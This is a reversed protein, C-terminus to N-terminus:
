PPWCWTGPLTGPHNGGDSLGGSGDGTADVARRHIGGGRHRRGSRALVRGPADAPHHHYGTSVVNSVASGSISGFLGSAVIAIKAAGGRFAGMLAIALDTFFGSGGTHRLIQGFFVFAIVITSGVVLPVGVFANPDIVLYALLFDYQVYLGNLIGPILHGVFAYAIFVLAVSLLPWGVTRRLGELILLLAIACVVFAENIHFFVDESLVPYRISLWVCVALALIAAIWDAPSPRGRGDASKKRAPFILLVLALAVGFAVVMYQQVFLM